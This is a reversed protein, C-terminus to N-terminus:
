DTVDDDKHDDDNNLESEQMLILIGDSRRINYFVNEDSFIVAKVKVLDGGFNTALVDDLGFKSKFKNVM